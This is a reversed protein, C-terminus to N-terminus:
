FAKVLAVGFVKATKGDVRDFALTPALGLDGLHFDYAVGLRWIDESESGPYHIKERGYGVSLRLEKWPHVHLLGMYISAGDGDHAGPTYEYLVGAGIKKTFKYEYELGLTAETTSSVNTGGFFVGVAHHKLEGDKDAAQVGSIAAMVLGALFVSKMLIKHM